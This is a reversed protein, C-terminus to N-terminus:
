GAPRRRARRRALGAAGAGGGRSAWSRDAGARDAADEGADRAAAGAGGGCGPRGTCLGGADAGRGGACTAGCRAVRCDRETRCVVISSEHHEVHHLLNRSTRKVDGAAAELGCGAEGSGGAGDLRRERVGGGGARGGARGAGGRRAAAHAAQLDAVDLGALPVGREMATAVLKGITEHATRQPVGRQILYEMLTTADLYGAISGSRLRARPEADAGAVMPAALELCAEVTDASDFVREKDEQLDRNYALPLGKVLVLLAQLNGIVRATKGRILELVDPNIKQPM